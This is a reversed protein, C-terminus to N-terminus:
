NSNISDTILEFTEINIVDNRELERFQELSADLSDIDGEKKYNICEVFCEVFETENQIYLESEIKKFKVKNLINKNYDANFLFHTILKAEEEKKGTINMLVGIISSCGDAEGCFNMERM